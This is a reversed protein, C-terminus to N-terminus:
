GDDQDRLYSGLDHTVHVAIAPEKFTGVTGVGLAEGLPDTVVCTDGPRLLPDHWAVSGAHIDRGYLFVRAAHATVRVTATRTRAAWLAAGQLDLHFGAADLAGIALGAADAGALLPAPLAALRPSVLVAYRAGDRELVRLNGRALLHVSSGLERSDFWDLVLATEEQTAARLGDHGSAAGEAPPAAPARPTGTPSPPPAWPKM